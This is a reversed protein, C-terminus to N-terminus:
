GDLRIWTFGEDQCAIVVPTYDDGLAKCLAARALEPTNNRRSLHAGVVAKLRSCDLATLIDAAAMNSLHGYPGGIRRKLAPSYASDALMQRDHNCELMLADCGSLTEIMHSTVHGADTLVGLRVQGNGAVYQVPE